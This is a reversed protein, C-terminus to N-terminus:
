SPRRKRKLRSWFGRPKDSDAIESRGTTDASQASDGGLSDFQELEMTKDSSPSLTMGAPPSVMDITQDDDLEEDPVIQARPKVSLAMDIVREEVNVERRFLKRMFQRLESQRFDYRVLIEELDKQFDAAHQYRQAPDRSLTKLVVEDLEPPVRRNFKSPPSVEAKRVAEMLAFESDGRFLKELTLMEYLVIGASFIDTRADLPLGRIQEPSMYSFKGKLTGIESTFQLMAQAIGFDLIKVEGDFSVRANSPSVDRNVLNLLRGDEASLRHAFELGEAIRSAIFVAHPVPIRDKTEQVRRVVQNLDRGGIYEM